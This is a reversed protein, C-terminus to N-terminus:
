LDIFAANPDRTSLEDGLARRLDSEDFEGHREIRSQLQSIHDDIPKVPGPLDRRFIESRITQLTQLLTRVVEVDSAGYRGLQGFTEDLLDAHSPVKRVLTRGNTLVREEPLPREWIALLVTGISRAVDRATNPDNVGPSLARLAIDVLRLLGFGVDEQMTRNPGIAIARHAADEIRTGAHSNVLVVPQGHTVFDGATVQLAVVTGPSLEAAIMPGDIQQVWGSEPAEIAWADAPDLDLTPEMEIHLSQKEEAVQEDDREAILDLTEQTIREVVSGIQVSKGLHGVARVVVLLAVFGFALAFLVSMHPVLPRLEEPGRTERLVLLPFVAAGLVAGIALQQSRDSLWDRSTRPSFQSSALQVVVLTLSLLLAVAGIMGSALATLLARSSDVSTEFVDPPDAWLHEDVALTVRSLALAGVVCLLPILVLSLRLEDLLQRLRIM